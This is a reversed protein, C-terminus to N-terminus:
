ASAEGPAARMGGTSPRKELGKWREWRSGWRRAFLDEMVYNLLTVVPVALILPALLRAVPKEELLSACIQLVDRTL